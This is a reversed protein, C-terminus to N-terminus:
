ESCYGSQRGGYLKLLEDGFVEKEMKLYNSM